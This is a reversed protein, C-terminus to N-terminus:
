IKRGQLVFRYSIGFWSFVFMLYWTLDLGIDKGELKTSTRPIQPHAPLGIGFTQTLDWSQEMFDLELSKKKSKFGLLLHWEVECLVTDAERHQFFGILPNLM